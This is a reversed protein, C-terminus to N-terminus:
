AGKTTLTPGATGFTALAALAAGVATAAAGCAPSAAVNAPIAGLATLAAGIATLATQVAALEASLAPFKVLPQSTPGGIDAGGAAKFPGVITTGSDDLVVYSSGDANKQTTVKDLITFSPGEGSALEIIPTGNGDRGVTVLHAKAPSTSYPVYLTWTHTDADFSAFSGDAAYQVSGGKTLPPIKDALRPDNALWAFGERGDFGFFLSCGKGNTPDLPRSAFGFTHLLEYVPADSQQQKLALSDRQVGWFGNEDRVTLLAKGLTVNM